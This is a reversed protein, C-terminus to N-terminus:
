QLLDSFAEEDEEFVWNQTNVDLPMGPEADAGADISVVDRVVSSFSTTAAPPPASGGTDGGGSDDGDYGGGGGCAALLCSAIIFVTLNRLKKM